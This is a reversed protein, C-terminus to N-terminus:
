ATARKRRRALLGIAGIGTGFLLIAGPLPTPNPPAYTCNDTCIGGYLIAHSLSHYDSNFGFLTWNGTIFGNVVDATPLTFAVWSIADKGKDGSLNGDKLALVFNTFANLYSMQVSFTGHGASDGTMTLAGELPLTTGAFDYSALPIYSGVGLENPSGNINGTGSAVYTSPTSGNPTVEAYWGGGPNAPYTTAHGASALSTVAAVVAIGFLGTRMKFM